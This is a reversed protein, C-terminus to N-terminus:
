LFYYYYVSPNWLRSPKKPLFASNRTLQLRLGKRGVFRVVEQLLQTSGVTIGRAVAGKALALGCM